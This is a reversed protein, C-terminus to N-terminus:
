CHITPTLWYPDLLLCLVTPIPGAYSDGTSFPSGYLELADRVIAKVGKGGPISAEHRM